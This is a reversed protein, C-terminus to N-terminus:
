SEKRESCAEALEQVAEFSFTQCGVKIGESSIEANYEQNLKIIKTAEYLETLKDVLESEPGHTIEGTSNAFNWYLPSINLKDAFNRRFSKTLRTRTEICDLINDMGTALITQIALAQFETLKITIEKETQEQSPMASAGTPQYTKLGEAAKDWKEKSIRAREKQIKRIKELDLSDQLKQFNTAKQKLFFKEWSLQIDRIPM